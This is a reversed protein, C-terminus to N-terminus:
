IGLRYNIEMQYCEKCLPIEVPYVGNLGTNALLIVYAEKGCDCKVPPNKRSKRLCSNCIGSPSFGLYPKKCQKCNPKFQTKM